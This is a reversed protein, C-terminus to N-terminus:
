PKTSNKFFRINRGENLNWGLPLLFKLDVVEYIKVFKLGLPIRKQVGPSGRPDQFPPASLFGRSGAQQPRWIANGTLEAM